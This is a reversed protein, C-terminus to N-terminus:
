AYALSNLLSRWCKGGKSLQHSTAERSQRLYWRTTQLCFDISPRTKRSIQCSRFNGNRESVPSCVPAAALRAWIIRTAGRGYLSDKAPVAMPNGGIANQDDIAHRRLASAVSGVVLCFRMAGPRASNYVVIRFRRILSFPRPAMRGARPELLCAQGRGLAFNSDM